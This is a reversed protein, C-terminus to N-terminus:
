ESRDHVGGGADQHQALDLRVGADGGPVQGQGEVLEDFEGVQVVERAGVLHPQLGGEVEALLGQGSGQGRGPYPGVLDVRDDAGGHGPQGHGGQFRSAWRTPSRGSTRRTGSNPL